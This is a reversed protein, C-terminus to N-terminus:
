KPKDAGRYNQGFYPRGILDYLKAIEQIHFLVEACKPDTANRATDCLWFKCWINRFICKGTWHPCKTGFRTLECCPVPDAVRCASGERKCPNYQHLMLDALDCLRENIAMKLELDNM